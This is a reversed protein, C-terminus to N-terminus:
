KVIEQRYTTKKNVNDYIETIPSECYGHQKSFKDLAPYVKMMGIMITMFGKMPFETVIYEQEPLIKVLYKESLMAITASDAENVICGVESRCNEKAVKSPDDYFIGIGKTTAINENDLLAHYIKDAVEPTQMYDGTVTEYVMVEGGQKEIRIEVKKFGSNCAYIGLILVVLVGIIILIIKLTKM